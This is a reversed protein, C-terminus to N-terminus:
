KRVGAWISLYSFFFFPYVMVGWSGDKIIVITQGIFLADFTIFYALIPTKSRKVPEKSGRHQTIVKRKAVIGCEESDFDCQPSM